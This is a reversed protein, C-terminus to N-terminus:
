EYQFCYQTGRSESWRSQKSSGGIRRIIGSRCFRSPVHHETKKKKYKNIIKSICYGGVYRVRAHPAKSVSRQSIKRTGTQYVRTEKTLMFTRIQNFISFCIHLDDEGFNSEQIFSLSSMRIEASTHHLHVKEYFENQLIATVPVSPTTHYEVSMASMKSVGGKCFTVYRDQNVEEELIKNNHIQM